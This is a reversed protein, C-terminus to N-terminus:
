VSILSCLLTHFDQNWKPRNSPLRRGNFGNLVTVIYWPGFPSGRAGYAQEVLHALSAITSQDCQGDALGSGGRGARMDYTKELNKRKHIQERGLRTCVSHQLLSASM